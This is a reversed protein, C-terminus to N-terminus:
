GSFESWGLDPASGSYGLITLVTEGDYSFSDTGADIAPSGSQLGYSSTYLPDGSAMTALDVNSGSYDLANGNFLTHSVTSGADVNNVGKKALTDGSIVSASAATTMLNETRREATVVIVNEGQAGAQASADAQPKSDDAPRDQASAAGSWAFALMSVSLWLAKTKM